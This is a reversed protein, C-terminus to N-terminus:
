PAVEKMGAANGPRPGDCLAMAARIYIRAAALLQDAEVYEGDSHARAISGPGCVVTQGCCRQLLAGDTWFQLGVPEADRKETKKGGPREARVAESLTLALEGDAPTELPGHPVGGFNDDIVIEGEFDPHLIRLEDLTRRLEVLVTEATEGPVLRREFGVECRGPVIVPRTGGAITGVNITPPGLLPHSQRALAPIYRDELYAVWRAARYIANVGRDPVSGHATVGAFEARYWAVGKHAVGVQLETPEGVIAYDALWGSQALKWAGPSYTEEGATGAFCLTGGPLGGSRRIADMAILMAALAGKMDVSGRGYLKDEQKVLTFPNSMGYPPVTDLHGNLLLTAGERVGHLKAAVNPRGPLAEKISAEIGRATLWEAIFGALKMEQGDADAHSEIAVLEALLQEVQETQVANLAAELPNM